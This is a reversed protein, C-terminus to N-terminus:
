LLIFNLETSILHLDKDRAIGHHGEPNWDEQVEAVAQCSCADEPLKGVDAHVASNPFHDGNGHGSYKGLIGEVEQEVELDSEGLGHDKATDGVDNLREVNELEKM